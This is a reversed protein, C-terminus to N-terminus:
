EALKSGVFAHLSLHNIAVFGRIGTFERCFILHERRLQIPVFTAIVTASLDAIAPPLGSWWRAEALFKFHQKAARGQWGLKRVVCINLSPGYVPRHERWSRCVPLLSDKECFDCREAASAAAGHIKKQAESALTM